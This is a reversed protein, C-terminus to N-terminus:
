ANSQRSDQDPSGANTSTREGATILQLALMHLNRRGMGRGLLRQITARVQLQQV